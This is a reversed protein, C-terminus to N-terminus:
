NDLTVSFRVQGQQLPALTGTMNWQIQPANITPTCLTLNAPLPMVCTAIPNETFAPVSDNIVINSIAETGNNSYTITYTITEGPLAVAKDVAKHLSLTSTGGVGVTTTDTRSLVETVTPVLVDYIFSSSVTVVNFAGQTANAPVFQKVILCITSNASVTYNGSIIPEGADLIGDCDTDRYLVESWLLTNPSAVSSLSFSVVGETGAFFQHAYTVTTGPQTQQAGDTYLASQAVDAFNVGTYTVGDTYTFQTTDTSLNYAGGTTGASGGTNMYGSLNQEVVCLTVGTALAAPVILQYNGLGDTQTVAYQTSACDTLRVLVNAIGVEGGNQLGDNPTGSGVGNDAFM